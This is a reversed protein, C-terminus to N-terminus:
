EERQLAWVDQHADWGRPEFALLRTRRALKPEDALVGDIWRRAHITLGWDHRLGAYRRFCMGSGTVEAVFSAAQAAIDDGYVHLHELCSEGHTTFVLVGAPALADVLAVLTTVSDAANLHTLLSGVFIVDFQRGFALRGMDITTVVGTAGFEAACFRVAPGEVDAVWLDAAPVRSRLYRTVRGYGSPFELISQAAELSGGGNAVARAVIEVAELGVRQYHARRELTPSGLMQDDLHIRGPIGPYRLAFTSPPLWPAIREQLRAGISALRRYTARSLRDELRWQVARCVRWVAANM